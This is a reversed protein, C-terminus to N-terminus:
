VDLKSEQRIWFLSWVLDLTQFKHKAKWNRVNPYAKKELSIIYETRSFIIGICTSLGGIELGNAISDEM